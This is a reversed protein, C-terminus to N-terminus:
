SFEKSIKQADEIKLRWGSAGCNERIHEARESKPIVVVPDKTLLWNLVVQTKTKGYKSCIDDLVKSKKGVIRGRTLPSYAILTIKESACYPLVDAEVNRENLNYEVQNSVLENKSLCSQAAKMEEVSFNSVGIYRIKGNKVLYEMARMTEEIPIDSSPWHLQYLDITKIKLRKLSSEAARIVGDYRFHDPSVKSAIFVKDRMGEIAEGVIGETGYIEATDIFTAGLSLGVRLPEVGDRYQWTGLGAEAIEIGTKGLEKKQM